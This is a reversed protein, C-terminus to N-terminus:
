KVLTRIVKALSKVAVDLEEPTYAAFGMLFGAESPTSLYLRTLGSLDIGARRAANIVSQEPVDCILKCLVQMGGEPTRATVYGSLHKEILRTLVQLRGSYICRMSRIYAGFQGSEIFRALTLQSISANHGDFLTRAATMPEVLQDPLLMYGIRLGPFLSKTFTGVYITRGHPDLGQVCAIPQGAYHFESDYDDEIIWANKRAAWEILALRRDLALTAGTPFQHSPSVYVANAHIPANCIHAVQLGQADVPVPVCELGAVEFAKRAGYYSPDEIFIPDGADLLVYACLAMAQQSSTLILIREPTAQTGRELNIYDAIARRLSEEGQPHGSLLASHGHEHLAQREMREWIQLPFSRTEPIGQVFPRPAVFNRNSRDHSILNGRESLRVEGGKALGSLRITAASPWQAKESVFTGSGVHREVFGEAHLQNYAAEVTDRSVGLSKALM